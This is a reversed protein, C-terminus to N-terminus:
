KEATKGKGPGQTAGGHEGQQQGSQSHRTKIQGGDKADSKPKGESKSNETKVQNKMIRKRM